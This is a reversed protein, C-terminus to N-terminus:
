SLTLNTGKTRSVLRAGALTDDNLRYDLQCFWLWFTPRRQVVDVRLSRDFPVPLYFNFARNDVPIFNAPAVPLTVERAAEVLGADTGRVGAQKEGDVYFEWDLFPEGAARTTWIHRLSGQGRVDLLTRRFGTNTWAGVHREANEVFSNKGPRFARLVFVDDLARARLGEMEAEQTALAAGAFGGV